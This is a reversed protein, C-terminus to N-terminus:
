SQTLDESRMEQRKNTKIQCKFVYKLTSKQTSFAKKKEQEQPIGGLLHSFYVLTRIM